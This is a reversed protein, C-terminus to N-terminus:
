KLHTAIRRVEHLEDPDRSLGAAEACVGARGCEVPMPPVPPSPVGWVLEFDFNCGTGAACGDVLEETTCLRAGAARCIAEAEAFTKNMSCQWNSGEDSGGWVSCGANRTWPPSNQVPQQVDSCCRM